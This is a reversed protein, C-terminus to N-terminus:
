DEPTLERGPQRPPTKTWDWDHAHPDGKGHDHGFDIDKQARGDPAYDRIQGKGDGNDKVQTSNPEAKSPLDGERTGNSWTIIKGIVWSLAAYGAVMGLGVLAAPGAGAGPMTATNALMPPPPADTATNGKGVKCGVCALIINNGHASAASQGGVTMPPIPRTSVSNNIEALSPNDSIEGRNDRVQQNHEGSIGDGTYEYKDLYVGLPMGTRSGDKGLVYVTGGADANAAADDSRMWGGGPLRMIMTGKQDGLSVVGPTFPSNPFWNAPDYTNFGSGGGGDGEGCCSFTTESSAGPGSSTGVLDFGSASFGDSAFQFGSPDTYRLPNNLVYAYPNFAVPSFPDNVFPDPSLFHGVRPDYIRGRMNILGTETDEEHGTFGLHVDSSVLAGGPFARPLTIDTSGGFPDFKRRQGVVQGSADTIVESSGLTDGHIYLVTESHDSEKRLIQGIQRGEVNL